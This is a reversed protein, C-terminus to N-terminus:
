NKVSDSFRWTEGVLEEYDSFRGLFVGVEKYNEGSDHYIYPEGLVL